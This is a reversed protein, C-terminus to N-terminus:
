RKVDLRSPPARGDDLYEGGEPRRPVMGRAAWRTEEGLAVLRDRLVTSDDPRGELEAFAAALVADIAVSRGRREDV